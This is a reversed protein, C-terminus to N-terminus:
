EDSVASTEATEAGAATTEPTTNVAESVEQQDMATARSLIIPLANLLSMTDDLGELLAENDDHLARVAVTVAEAIEIVEKRAEASESLKQRVVGVNLFALKFKVTNNLGTLKPDEGEAGDALVPLVSLFFESIFSLVAMRPRAKIDPLNKFYRSLIEIKEPSMSAPNFM